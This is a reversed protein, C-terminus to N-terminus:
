KNWKLLTSGYTLGGGFGIIVLNSGSSLIGAKNAEDLAVPISAGSTNGVHQLNIIFRDLPIEVKKSFSELMRMNAQHPLIFDINEKKLKSENLIRNFEEDMTKVAFKYIDKGNMKLKGDHIDGCDVYPNNLPSGECTLSEWKEGVSKCNVYNIHKEKDESLVVAGAGDGFLVCTNRDKWDTIKSLVEAGIVLAKTARGAAIYNNAMDLAFIFGSCAANIDFAMANDAGINKQVKCAASPIISDASVTAVIILDIEKATVNSDKLAEIAAKTALDSTTEGQSIRREVIGTRERIWEDSTDVLAEIAKNSMVNSPMYSGTGLIRSGKM